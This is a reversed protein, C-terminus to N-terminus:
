IDREFRLIASPLEQIKNVKSPNMIRTMMELEYRGGSPAYRKHLQRWAEFGLGEYTEVIVLADNKCIMVLFDYLKEDAARAPQWGMTDITDHNISDGEFAEAWELARRFGSKIANCYTKFQRSWAKWSEERRGYFNDPKNVKLDMMKIEDPREGGASIRSILATTRAESEAIAKAAQGRITGLENTLRGIQARAQALEDNLQAVQQEIPLSM